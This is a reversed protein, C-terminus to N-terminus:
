SEDDSGKGRPDFVGKFRYWRYDTGAVSVVGVEVTYVTAFDVKVSDEASATVKHSDEEWVIDGFFLGTRM